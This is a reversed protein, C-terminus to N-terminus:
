GLESILQRARDSQVQDGNRVVEELLERAGDKDGIDNYALALDLKTAMAQWVDTKAGFDTSSAGASSFDGQDLDLNLNSFAELPETKDFQRNALPDREDTKKTAMREPVSAPPPEVPTEGYLTADDAIISSGFIDSATFGDADRPSPAAPTPEVRARFAPLNVATRAAADSAGFASATFPDALPHDSASDGLDAHEDIPAAPAAARLPAIPSHNGLDFDLDMSPGAAASDPAPMPDTRAHEVATKAMANEIATQTMTARADPVATGTNLGLSSMGFNLSSGAGFQSRSPAPAVPARVAPPPAPEPEVAQEPEAYLPNRPDIGLGLAAAQRWEDGQGGSAAYLETAMSEFTKADGRRAYIELLKLRVGQRGDDARLAEKLIEEAQADRGYAIYVDAEAVPDVENHEPLTGAVPVFNSHFGSNATDVSQGGTTGFVSNAHLVSNDVFISDEFNAIRKRRSAFVAYGLLLLVIVLIGVLLLSNNLLGEYWPEGTTAPPPAVKTPEPAPAVAV